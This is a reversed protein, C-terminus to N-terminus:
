LSNIGDSRKKEHFQEFFRGEFRFLPNQGSEALLEIMWCLFTYCGKEANALRKRM